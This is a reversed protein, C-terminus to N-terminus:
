AILGMIENARRRFLSKQRATVTGEYYAFFYIDTPSYSFGNWGGIQSTKGTYTSASTGTASQTTVGDTIAGSTLNAGTGTRTIESRMIGGTVDGTTLIDANDYLAFGNAGNPRYVQYYPAAPELMFLSVTDGGLIEKEVFIWYYNAPIDIPLNLWKRNGSVTGATFGKVGGTTVYVPKNTSTAQTGPNAEGSVDEYAGVPDGATTVPTTGANDTYLESQTGDFVSGDGTMGLEAFDLVLTQTSDNDVAADTFAALGNITNGAASYSALVVVDFDYIKTALPYDITTAGSPAGDGVSVADGDATLTWDSGLFTGSPSASMEVRLTEGDALISLAVATPGGGNQDDFLFLM